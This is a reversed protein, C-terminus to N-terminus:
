VLKGLYEVNKLKLDKALTLIAIAGREFLFSPKDVPKKQLVSVIGELRSCGHSCLITTGNNKRLCKKLVKISEIARQKVKKQFLYLVCSEFDDVNDRAAKEQALREEPETFPFQGSKYDSLEEYFESISLNIKMGDLIPQLTDIARKRNSCIALNPLPIKRKKLEEVLKQGRKKCDLITEPSLVNNKHKEHRIMILYKM